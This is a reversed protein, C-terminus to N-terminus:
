RVRTVLAEQDLEKCAEADRLIDSVSNAAGEKSGEESMM